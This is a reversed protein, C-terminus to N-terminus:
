ASSTTLPTRENRKEKEKKREKKTIKKKPPHPTPTITPYHLPPPPESQLEATNKEPVSLFSTDASCLNKKKLNPYTHIMDNRFTCPPEM